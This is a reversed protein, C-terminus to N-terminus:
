RNVHGYNAKDILDLKQRIDSGSRRFWNAFVLRCALLVGLGAKALEAGAYAKAIIALRAREPTYFKDPVFDAVRGFAISEPTLVFRQGVTILLMLVPVALSFKDERTGFLLFFAFFLGFVLQAEEWAEYYFRNQERALHRLMFDVTEDLKADGIDKWAVKVTAGPDHRVREVARLNEATVLALFLGGSLWLGLLLCALRRSHMLSCIIM